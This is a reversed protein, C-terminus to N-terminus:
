VKTEQPSEVLEEPMNDENSVGEDRKRRKLKEVLTTRNLHLLQAARNKVGNAKKLAEEILRNEFAEVMETFYVGEDPIQPMSWGGVSPEPIQPVPRAGVPPLSHVVGRPARFLDAREETSVAYMTYSPGQSDEAILAPPGSAKAMAVIKPPLDAVNITEGSALIVM